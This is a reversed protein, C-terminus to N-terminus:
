EGRIEAKAKEVLVIDESCDFATVAASITKARKDFALIRAKVEKVAVVSYLSYRKWWSYRRRISHLGIQQENSRRRPRSRMAVINQSPPNEAERVIHFLYSPLKRSSTIRRTTVKNCTWLKLSRIGHNFLLECLSTQRIRSFPRGM